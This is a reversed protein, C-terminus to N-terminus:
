LEFLLVFIADVEDDEIHRALDYAIQQNAEVIADARGGQAALHRVGADVAGKCVDVVSAAATLDTGPTDTGPM